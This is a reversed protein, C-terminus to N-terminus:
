CSISTTLQSTITMASQLPVPAVLLQHASGPGEIGFFRVAALGGRTGEDSFWFRVATTGGVTCLSIEVVLAGVAAFAIGM